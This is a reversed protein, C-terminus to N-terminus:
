SQSSAHKKTFSPLMEGTRVFDGYKRAWADLVLFNKSDRCAWAHWLKSMRALRPGPFRARSLRHFFVRYVAISALLTTIYSMFVLFAELFSASIDSNAYQTLLATYVIPALIHIALIIASYLHWEGYIFVGHHLGIATVGGLLLKPWLPAYKVCDQDRYTTSDM